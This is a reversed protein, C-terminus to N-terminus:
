GTRAGSSETYLKKDGHMQISSVPYLSLSISSYLIEKNSDGPLFAIPLNKKEQYKFM